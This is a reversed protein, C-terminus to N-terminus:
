EKSRTGTCLESSERFRALISFFEKLTIEKPAARLCLFVAAATATISCLLESYQKVPESM